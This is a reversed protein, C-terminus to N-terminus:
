WRDRGEAVLEAASRPGKFVSEALRDFEQDSMMDAEKVIEDLSDPAFIEPHEEFHQEIVSRVAESKNKFGRSKVMRDLKEKTEKEIKVNLIEM